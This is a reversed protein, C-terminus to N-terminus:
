LIKVTLHFLGLRIRDGDRVECQQNPALHTENVFSGNTSGHDELLLRGPTGAHLTAHRSSVTAHALEIDAGANASLRGILNRGQHLSWFQGLPNGDFSVLFGCLLRAADPRNGMVAPPPGPPQLLAARDLDAPNATLRNAEQLPEVEVPPATEAFPLQRAATSLPPRASQHAPVAAAVPPPAPADSMLRNGCGVCFRSSGDNSHGCRQCQVM